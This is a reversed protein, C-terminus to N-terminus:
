RVQIKTGSKNPLGKFHALILMSGTKGGEPDQTQVLIMEDGKVYMHQEMNRGVAGNRDGNSQEAFSMATTKEAYWSHVKAAVEPCRFAVMNMKVGKGMMGAMLNLTGGAVKTAPEDMESGPYIPIQADQIAKLSVEPAVANNISNVVRYTLFACGGFGLLTISGCGIGVWAWPSLGKKPPPPAYAGPGSDFSM